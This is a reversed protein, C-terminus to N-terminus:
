DWWDFLHKKFLKLLLDLDQQKMYDEYNGWRKGTWGITNCTITKAQSNLRVIFDDFGDYWRVLDLMDDYNENYLRDCLIRAIKIEKARKKHDQSICKNEDYFFEEMLKLKTQMIKFLYNWDFEYNNWIVPIWIKLRRLNDYFRKLKRIM